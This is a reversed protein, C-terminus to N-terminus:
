GPVWRQRQSERGPEHEYGCLYLLWRSLYTLSTSATHSSAVGASEIATLGLTRTDPSAGSYRARSLRDLMTNHLGRSPEGKTGLTTRRSTVPMCARRLKRFTLLCVKYLIAVIALGVMVAKAFHCGDFRRWRLTVCIEEVDVASTM